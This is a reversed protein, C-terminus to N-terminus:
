RWSRRSRSAAPCTICATRTPSRRLQQLHQPTTDHFETIQEPQPLPVNPPRQRAAAAEREKEALRERISYIHVETDITQVAFLAESVAVIPSIDVASSSRVM